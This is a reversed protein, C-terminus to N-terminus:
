GLVAFAGTLPRQPSADESLYMVCLPRDCPPFRSCPSLSYSAEGTNHARGAVVKGGLVSARTAPRRNVPLGVHGIIVKLEGGCSSRSPCLFLPGPVAVPRCRKMAAGTSPRCTQPQGGACPIGSLERGTTRRSRNDAVSPSSANPQLEFVQRLQGAQQASFTAQRPRRIATSHPNRARWRATSGSAM